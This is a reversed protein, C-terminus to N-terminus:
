VPAPPQNEQSRGGPSGSTGLDKMALLDEELSGNLFFAECQHHDLFCLVGGAEREQPCAFVVKDFLCFM